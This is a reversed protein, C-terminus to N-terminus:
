PVRELTPQPEVTVTPLPGARDSVSLAAREDRLIGAAMTRAAIVLAFMWWTFKQHMIHVFIGSVFTGFVGGEIMVRMDYLRHGKPIFDVAKYIYWWGLLLFLTGVVGLEVVAELITDHAGRNWSANFTNFVQLFYKNYINSFNDLGGGFLWYHKVAILGVKWIPIRGSGGNDAGTRDPTVFRVWVSPYLFSVLLGCVTVFVLQARYRDKWFFYGITAADAVIAGRSGVVYQGVMLIGFAILYMIKKFGWRERLAAMVVAGIPFVMSAAFYDSSLHNESDFHGKLRGQNIYKGGSFVIAGFIAAICSGVIFAGLMFKFETEDVPLIVFSLYLGILMVFTGYYSLVSDDVNVAWLLSATGWIFYGVWMTASIGPNAFQRKRAVWFLAALLAMGGALKTVSGGSTLNLYSDSPVLLAYLAVPFIWPRKISFILAPPIFLLSIAVAIGTKSGCWGSLLGFALRCGQDSLALDFACAVLYVFVGIASCLAIWGWVSLKPLKTAGLVPLYIM